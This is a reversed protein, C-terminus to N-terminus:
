RMGPLSWSSTQALASIAAAGLADVEGALLRLPVPAPAHLLGLLRGTALEVRTTGPLEPDDAPATPGWPEGLEDCLAPLRRLLEACGAALRWWRGADVGASAATAASWRLLHVVDHWVVDSVVCTMASCHPPRRALVLRHAGDPDFLRQRLDDDM